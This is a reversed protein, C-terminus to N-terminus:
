RRCWRSGPVRTTPIRRQRRRRRLARVLNDDSTSSRAKGSRRTHTPSPFQSQLVSPASRLSPPRAPSNRRSCGTAPPTPRGASLGSAPPARPQPASRSRRSRDADPQTERGRRHIQAPRFGSDAGPPFRYQPRPDALVRSARERPLGRGPLGASARWDAVRRRDLTRGGAIGVGPQRRKGPAALLAPAKSPGPTPDDPRRLELRVPSSGRGISITSRENPVGGLREMRSVRGTNLRPGFRTALGQGLSTQIVKQADQPGSGLTLVYTLAGVIDLAITLPNRAWPSVTPEPTTSAPQLVVM